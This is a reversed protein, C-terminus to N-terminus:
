DQKLIFDYVRGNSFLRIYPTGPKFIGYRGARSEGTGLPIKTLRIPDHTDWFYNEINDKSLEYVGDARPRERDLDIVWASLCIHSDGFTSGKSSGGYRARGETFWGGDNSIVFTNERINYVDVSPFTRTYNTGSVIKYGKYVPAIPVAVAVATADAIAAGSERSCSAILLSVLSILVVKIM